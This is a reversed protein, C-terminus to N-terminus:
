GFLIRLGLGPVEEGGKFPGRGAEGRLAEAEQAEPVSVLELRLCDPSPPLFRPSQPNLNQPNSPKFTQFKQNKLNRPCCATRSADSTAAVLRHKLISEIWRVWKIVCKCLKPIETRQVMLRLSVLGLLMHRRARALARGLAGSLRSSPSRRM